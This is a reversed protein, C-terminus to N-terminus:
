VEINPAEGFSKATIKIWGTTGFKDKYVLTMEIPWLDRLPKKSSVVIRFLSGTPCLRNGELGCTVEQRHVSVSELTIAPGDNRFSFHGSTPVAAVVNRGTNSGTSGVFVVLPAADALVEQAQVKTGAAIVALAGVVERTLELQIQVDRNSDAIQRQNELHGAILWLFAVIAIAGGLYDGWDGLSPPWQNANRPMFFPVAVFAIIVVGTACFWIWNRNWVGM